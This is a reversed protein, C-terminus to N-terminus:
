ADADTGKRSEAELKDQRHHDGDPSVWITGLAPSDPHREVRGTLAAGENDVYRDGMPESSGRSAIVNRLGESAVQFEASRLARVAQDEPSQPAEIFEWNGKGFDRDYVEAGTMGNPRKENVQLESNLQGPNLPRWPGEHKQIREPAQNSM